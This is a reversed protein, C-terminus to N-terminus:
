LSQTYAPTSIAGAGVFRTLCTPMDFSARAARAQARSAYLGFASPGAGSLCAALPRSRELAALAADTSAWRERASRTFASKLAEYELHGGAIASVQRRASAGDSFDGPRLSRYMAATKVLDGDAELPVLVVWHAPPDPLVRLDRGTGTALATGGRVCFPVDAGLSGGIEMLDETSLRLDWLENLAVLTAAADASGGGLGAGIPIRKWCEAFCGQVTAYRERLLTAARLILNDDRLAMGHCRLVVNDARTFRLRDALDISQLITAVEHMGDPRRGLVELGLNIKAYARATITPGM